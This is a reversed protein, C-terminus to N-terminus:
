YMELSIIFLTDSFNKARPALPTVHLCVYLRSAQSRVRIVSLYVAHRLKKM